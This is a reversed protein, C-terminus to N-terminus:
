LESDSTRTNAEHNRQPNRQAILRQRDLEATKRRLRAEVSAHADDAEKLAGDGWQQLGLHQLHERQHVERPPVPDKQGSRYWYEEMEMTLDGFARFADSKSHWEDGDMLRLCLVHFPNSQVEVVYQPSSIVGVVEPLLDEERMTKAIEKLRDLDPKQLTPLASWKVKYMRCKISYLRVCDPFEPNMSPLQVAMMGRRALRGIVTALTDVFDGQEDRVEPDSIFVQRKRRRGPMSHSGPTAAPPAPLRPASPPAEPPAEPPAGPRAPPEQPRQAPQQDTQEVDRMSVDSRADPPSHQDPRFAGTPQEPRQGSAILQELSPLNDPSPPQVVRGSSASRRCMPCLPTSEGFAEDYFHAMDLYKNFCHAGFMHDCPLIHAPERSDSPEQLGEIELEKQCFLCIVKPPDGEREQLYQQVESWRAGGIPTSERLRQAIPRSEGSSSDATSPTAEITERVVPQSPPAPSEAVPQPQSHSQTSPGAPSEPVAAAPRPNAPWPRPTAPVSAIERGSRTQRPSDVSSRAVESDAHSLGPVRQIPPPAM